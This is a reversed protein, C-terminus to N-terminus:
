RCRPWRTSASRTTSRRTASTARPACARAQAGAGDGDRAYDDADSTITAVVAQVPALWLPLHGAYHELVVGLFREMSGCIARHIM